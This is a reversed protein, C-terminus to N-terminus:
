RFREKIKRAVNIPFMGLAMELNTTRCLTSLGQLKIRLLFHERQSDQSAVPFDSAMAWRLSISTM